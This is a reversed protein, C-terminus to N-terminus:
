KKYSVPCVTFEYFCAVELVKGVERLRGEGALGKKSLWVFTNIHICANQFEYLIGHHV